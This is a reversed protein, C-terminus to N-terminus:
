QRNHNPSPGTTEVTTTTQTHMPAYLWSITAVCAIVALCGIVIPGVLDRQKAVKPLKPRSARCHAGM